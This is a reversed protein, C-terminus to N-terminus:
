QLECQTYSRSLPIQSNSLCYVKSKRPNLCAMSCSKDTQEKSGQVPHFLSAMVEHLSLASQLGRGSRVIVCLGGAPTPYLKNFHGM